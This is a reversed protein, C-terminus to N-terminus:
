CEGDGVFARLTTATFVRDAARATMGLRTPAATEAALPLAAKGAVVDKLWAVAQDRRTRIEESARNAWLNFRVLDAAIGALVPPVPDVPLAFARGPVAGLYSDVLADADAEAQAYDLGMGTAADTLQDLEAQGFRLAFTTQPCYM